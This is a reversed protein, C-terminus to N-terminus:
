LLVSPPAVQVWVSTMLSFVPTESIAMSGASGWCGRRRRRDAGGCRRRSCRRRDRHAAEVAGDVAARVPGLHGAAQGGGAVDAAAGEVDIALVGVDDVGFELVGREAADVAGFVLAGGPGAHAVGIRAGGVEALDADVGVVILLDPEAADVDVHGFVAAAGEDLGTEAVDVAVNVGDPDVGGIGVVHEGAVIAADPDGPVAAAVPAVQVVDRM